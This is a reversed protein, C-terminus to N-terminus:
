LPLQAASYFTMLESLSSAKELATLLAANDGQIEWTGFQGVNKTIYRKLDDLTTPQVSPEIQCSIRVPQDWLMNMLRKSLSVRESSVHRVNYSRGTRDVLVMDDYLKAKLHGLYATLLHEPSRYVFVYKGMLALVPYELESAEM